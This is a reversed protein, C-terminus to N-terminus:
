TIFEFVPLTLTFKEGNLPVLDGLLVLSVLVLEALDPLLELLELLLLDQLEAGWLLLTLDLFDELFLLSLNLLDLSIELFLELGLGLLDLLVLFGDFGQSLLEVLLPDVEGFLESVLVKFELEGLLDFFLFGLLDDGELLLDFSVLGFLFLGLLKGLVFLGLELELDLLEAGLQLRGLLGLVFELELILGLEFFEGFGVLLLDLVEGLFDDLELFLDLVVVFGGLLAVVIELDFEVFEGLLELGLLVLGLCEDVLLELGLSGLM